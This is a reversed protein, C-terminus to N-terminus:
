YFKEIDSLTIVRLKKNFKDCTDIITKLNEILNEFKNSILEENSIIFSSPHLISVIIKRSNIINSIEESIIKNHFSLDLYRECFFKDYSTKTKITTLPVELIKLRNEIKDTTLKYNNISPHYPEFSTGIWDFKIGNNRQRNPIASSDVKFDNNSLSQLIQNSSGCGLVRNSIPIIGFNSFKELSQKIYSDIKKQSSNEIDLKESILCHMGIEDVNNQFSKRIEFFNKLIKEEDSILWTIEPNKSNTLYEKITDYIKPILEINKLENSKAPFNDFFIDASLIFLIENENM